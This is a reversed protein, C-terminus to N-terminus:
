GLFERATLEFDPSENQRVLAAEITQVVVIVFGSIFYFVTLRDIYTTYSLRPLDTAILYQFAVIALLMTLTISCRDHLDEPAVEFSALLCTALIAMPLVHHWISYGPRRNVRADMRLESFVEGSASERPDSMHMNFRLAPYLDYEHSLIFSKTFVHSTYKKSQNQM